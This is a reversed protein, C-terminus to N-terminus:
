EINLHKIIKNLKDNITKLTVDEVEVPPLELLEGFEKRINIIADELKKQSKGRMADSIGQLKEDFGIRMSIYKLTYGHAKLKELMDELVEKSNKKLDLNDM